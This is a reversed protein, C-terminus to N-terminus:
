WEKEAMEIKGNDLAKQDLLTVDGLISIKNLCEGFSLQEEKHMQILAQTNLLKLTETNM